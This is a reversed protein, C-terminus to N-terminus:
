RSAGIPAGVSAPQLQGHTPGTRVSSGQSSIGRTILNIAADEILGVAPRREGAALPAFSAVLGFIARATLHADLTRLSGQRVGDELATVYLLEHERQMSGIESRERPPLNRFECHLVNLERQRQAEFRLLHSVLNELRTEADPESAIQLQESLLDRIVTDAIECLLESKSEIHNYLSGVQIGVRTAIDRLTTSQYGQRSFLELATSRIALATDLRRSTSRKPFTL